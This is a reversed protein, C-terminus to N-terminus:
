PGACPPRVYGTSVVFASAKDLGPPQLWRTVFRSETGRRRDLRLRKFPPAAGAAQGRLHRSTEFARSPERTCSRDLVAQPMNKRAVTLPSGVHGVIVVVLQRCALLHQASARRHVAVRQGAPFRAAGSLSGSSSCRGFTFSFSRRSAVSAATVTSAVTDSPTSACRPRSPIRRARRALRLMVNAALRPAGRRATRSGARRPSGPRVARAEQEAAVASRVHGRCSDFKRV